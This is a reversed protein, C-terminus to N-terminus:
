RRNQIDDIYFGLKNSRNGIRKVRLTISGWIARFSIFRRYQRTSYHGRMKGWKLPDRKYLERYAALRSNGELVEFSGDKVIIPDILDGNLKIDQVLEKVHDMKILKEQIEEQTPESEDVDIAFYIRPNESFYKLTMVALRDTHM